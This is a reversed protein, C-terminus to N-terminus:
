GHIRSYTAANHDHDTLTTRAFRNTGWYLGHPMLLTRTNTTRTSRCGRLPSPNPTRASAPATVTTRRTGSPRASRHPRNRTPSRSNLTFPSGSIPTSCDAATQMSRVGGPWTISATARGVLRTQRRRVTPTRYPKRNRTPTFCATCTCVISGFESAAALQKCAPSRNSTILPVHQAPMDRDSAMSRDLVSSSTSRTPELEM